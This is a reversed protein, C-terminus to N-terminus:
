GPEKYWVFIWIKILRYFFLFPTPPIIYYEDKFKVNENPLRKAHAFDIMKVEVKDNNEGM